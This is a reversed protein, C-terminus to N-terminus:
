EEVEDMIAGCYPCRPTEIRSFVKNLQIAAINREWSWGCESCYTGIPEGNEGVGILWHGHKPANLRREIERGKAIMANDHETWDDMISKWDLAVTPLSKIYLKVMKLTCRCVSDGERPMDEDLSAIDDDILEILEDADILRAM